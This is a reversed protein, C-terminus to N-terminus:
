RSRLGIKPYHGLPMWSCINCVNTCPSSCLKSWKSPKRPPTIKTNISTNTCPKTCPRSRCPITNLASLHRTNSCKANFICSCRHSSYEWGKTSNKSTSSNIWSHQLHFWQRSECKKDSSKGSGPNGSMKTNFCLRSGITWGEKNWSKTLLSNLSFLEKKLSTLFIM